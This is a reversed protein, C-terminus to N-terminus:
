SRSALVQVVDAAHDFRAAGGSDGGPAVQVQGGGRLATAVRHGIGCAAVGEALGADVAHGAEEDFGINTVLNQNPVISLWDNKWYTYLWLYDWLGPAIGSRVLEMSNLWRSKSFINKASKPWNIKKYDWNSFDTDILGWRNDWTAWGWAYFYSSFRYSSSPDSIKGLPVFNSGNISGIRFDDRYEVLMKEAFEIFRKSPVVDEEIIIVEPYRNLIWTM